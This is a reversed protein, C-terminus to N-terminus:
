PFSPIPSLDGVSGWTTTIGNSQTFSHTFTTLFSHLSYTHLYEQITTYLFRIYQKHVYIFMLM